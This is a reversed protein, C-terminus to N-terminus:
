ASQKKNKKEPEEKPEPPLGIWQLMALVIGSVAAAIAVVLNLLLPMTDSHGLSFLLYVLCAGGTVMCTYWAITLGQRLTM